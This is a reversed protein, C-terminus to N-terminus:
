KKASENVRFWLLLFLLGYIRANFADIGDGVGTVRQGLQTLWRHHAPIHHIPEKSAEMMDDYEKEVQKHLINYANPHLLEPGIYIPSDWQKKWQYLWYGASQLRLPHHQAVEMGLKIEADSFPRDHPQRLVDEAESPLLLSLKTTIVGNVFYANLGPIKTIFQRTAFVLALERDQYLSRLTARFPEDFEIPKELLYKFEDLLLVVRLGSQKGWEIVKRTEDFSIAQGQELRQELARM